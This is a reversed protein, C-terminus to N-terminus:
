AADMNYEFVSVIPTGIERRERVTKAFRKAQKENTTTYFGQGFDLGRVQGLLQPETVETNSGHYLLM